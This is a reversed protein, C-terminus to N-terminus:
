KFAQPMPKSPAQDLRGLERLFSWLWPGAGGLLIALVILMTRPPSSKELPLDGDDLINLIPMDNKEELLAQEYNLTLTTFVQQRLKLTAEQRAGKLRVAPDYSTTYNRHANLFAEFEQEAQASEAEAEKLREATFAAKNGGRTRAKVQIFNELIDVAKRVIQQSLEPSHTEASITLLKSKLDRNVHLIDQMKKLARDLNRVELYAYLSERHERPSGLCWARLSFQYNELLLKKAMWRSNVIDVFAADSGEQGPIVIGLMAAAAAATAMQGMAGTGARSDAPLIRAESRYQNPVFLTIVAMAVGALLGNRLPKRVPAPIRNFSLSNRFTSSM